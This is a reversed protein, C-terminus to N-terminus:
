VMPVGYAEFNVPYADINFLDFQSFYMDPADPLDSISNAMPVDQHATTPGANPEPTDDSRTSSANFTKPSDFRILSPFFIAYRKALTLEEPTM